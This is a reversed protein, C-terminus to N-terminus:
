IYQAYSIKSLLTMYTKYHGLLRILMHEYFMFELALQQMPYDCIVSFVMFSM